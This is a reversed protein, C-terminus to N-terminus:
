PYWNKDFGVGCEDGNDDFQKISPKTWGGFSEFDGFGAVGDYHAYWLPIDSYGGFSSGFIQYYLDLFGACCM